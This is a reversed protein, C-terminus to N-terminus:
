LSFIYIYIYIIGSSKYNALELMILAACVTVKKKIGSSKYNAFELM